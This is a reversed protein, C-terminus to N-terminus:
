SRRLKLTADPVLKALLAQAERPPMGEPRSVGGFTAKPIHTAFRHRYQREGAYRLAIRGSWDISPGRGFLVRHASVADHGLLYAEFARSEEDVEDDELSEVPTRFTRGTLRSWELPKRTTAALFGRAGGWMTSSITANGYNSWVGKSRWDSRDREDQEERDGEDYDASELHFDFWLGTEPELRGTWVFKKVRHGRPWPNGRFFIRAQTSAPV